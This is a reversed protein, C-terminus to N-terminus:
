LHGSEATVKSLSNRDKIYRKQTYYLVTTTKNSHLQQRKATMTSRTISKPNSSIKSRKTLYFNQGIKSKKRLNSQLHSRSTQITEVSTIWFLIHFEEMSYGQQNVVSVPTIVQTKTSFQLHCINLGIDATNEVHWKTKLSAHTPELKGSTQPHKEYCM